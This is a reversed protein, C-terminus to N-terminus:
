REHLCLIYRPPSIKAWSDDDYEILVWYNNEVEEIFDKFAQRYGEKDKTMGELIEVVASEGQPERMIFGTPTNYMYHKQMNAYQKEFYEAANEYDDENM